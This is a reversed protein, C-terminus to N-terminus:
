QKPAAKKEREYVEEQNLGYFIPAITILEWKKRQQEFESMLKPDRINTKEDIESKLNYLNFGSDKLIVEKFGSQHLV